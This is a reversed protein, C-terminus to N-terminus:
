KALTDRIASISPAFFYGGGTPIVWDDTTTLDHGAGGVRVNFTRQRSGDAAQAQGLIPDIGANPDKFNADNVWKQTVFEFQDVISTMYAMFLLGRDIGDDIPVAPTSRSSPGFPIGRRLLRHTQTDRENLRRAADDQNYQNPNQSVDDRPYSKRIHADFPCLDGAKDGPSQPYTKDECQDRGPANQTPQTADQFEFHNNACDDDALQPNDNDPARMTPAGSAWRGVLHAGLAAPSLGVTGAQQSVFSHFKFVDQRLRRFVLYAGDKAWGPAVANGSGDTMSDPGPQAVEQNADQGPYGFVFEGPWLLDQGPKGQDPDDPNQRPTLVDHKHNSIRGRLGPQSVGDLFGFHEHGALTGLQTRGEQKFILSAGCRVPRGRRHPAFLLQEVHAVETELDALTDAAVIILVQAGNQDDGILWQSPHGEADGATPDGLAASQAVVGSKFSSDTFSDADATLQALAAHSFAINIWSAKVSGSYGRRDRTRKFLRNFAIVEEATAVLNVFDALWAKFLTADDIRLFLLTQFDKNFGAIINGQINGVTLQPEKGADPRAPSTGSPALPSVAPAERVQPSAPDTGQHDIETTVAPADTSM